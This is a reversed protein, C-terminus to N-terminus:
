QKTWTETYKYVTSGTTSEIYYKLTTANLEVVTVTDSNALVIKTENSAWNWNFTTTQPNSPSCKTLGEDETVTNSTSFMRTNDKLCASTSAYLDVTNTNVSNTEINATLKWTKNCLKSTNTETPSVSTPTVEEPNDNKKKCSGLLLGVCLLSLLIVNGKKM